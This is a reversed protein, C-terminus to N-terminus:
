KRIRTPQPKATVRQRHDNHPEYGGRWGTHDSLGKEETLYKRLEDCIENLVAPDQVPTFSRISEGPLYGKQHTFGFSIRIRTKSNEDDHYTHLTFHDIHKRSRKFQADLDKRIDEFSLLPTAQARVSLFGQEKLRQGAAAVLEQLSLDYILPNFQISEKRGTFRILLVALKDGTVITKENFRIVFSPKEGGLKELGADLKRLFDDLTQKNDM